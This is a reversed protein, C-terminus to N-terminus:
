SCKKDAIEGVINSIIHNLLWTRMRTKPYHLCLAADVECTEELYWYRLRYIICSLCCVWPILYIGKSVQILVARRTSCGSTLYVTCVCGGGARLDM